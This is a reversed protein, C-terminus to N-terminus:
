DARQEWKMTILQLGSKFVAQGIFSNFINFNGGGWINYTLSLYSLKLPSLSVTLSDLFTKPFLVSSG